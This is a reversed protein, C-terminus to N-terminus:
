ECVWRSLRARPLPVAPLDGTQPLARRQVCRWRGGRRHLRAALASTEDGPLDVALIWLSRAANREHWEEGARHVEHGSRGLHWRLLPFSREHATIAVVPERGAREVVERCLHRAWLSDADRCPRWCDRVIGAAGILGLVLFVAVAARRRRALLVVLGQGALLCWVPALHQALRCSAGYPYGHLAAALLGLAFLAAFLGVLWRRRRWLRRVGLLGILVTGASGGAAAGIPYAAMQGTHALVLWGALAVPQAPPFGHQWYAAMEEATTSTQTPSALQPRAVLLYHAAFTGALLANFLLFLAWTARSARRRVLPLCGLSVAGAVLVAPYSALVALPGVFVLRLLPGLRDPRQQWRAACLLLALSFFLDFTYPKVLSGLTAPWISVALVAVALGSALPPLVLRALRAFLVLSGLCALLAPLRVALEGSGLLRLAALEAWHFLLPAVQCHELQGVLDLFGRDHYNVLLMAEDGWVPFCLLYRTLRWAVGVLLV